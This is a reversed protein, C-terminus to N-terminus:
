MIGKKLQCFYEEWSIHKRGAAIEYDSEFQTTGNRIGSYIGAIVTGLFDGLKAKRENEPAGSTKRGVGADLRGLGRVGYVNCLEPRLVTEM